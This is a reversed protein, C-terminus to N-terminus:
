ADPRVPQGFLVLYKGPFEHQVNPGYHVQIIFEPQNTTRKKGGAEHKEAFSCEIRTPTNPGM